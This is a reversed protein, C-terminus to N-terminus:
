KKPTPRLKPRKNPPAVIADAYTLASPNASTPKNNTPTPTTDAINNYFEPVVLSYGIGDLSEIATHCAQRKAEQITMAHGFGLPQTGEHTRLFINSKKVLATTDQEEVITLKYKQEIQQLRQIPDYLDEFQLSIDQKDLLSKLMNACIHHGAMNKKLFFNLHHETFGFFAEFVDELLSVPMDMFLEPCIDIIENFRLHLALQAWSKTSVLRAKLQSIVKVGEATRLQPFRTPIYWVVLKNLVADGLIEWYEYNFHPKSKAITATKHIFVFKQYKDLHADIYAKADDPKMKGHQVLATSLITKIIDTNAM